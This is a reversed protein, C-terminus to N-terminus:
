LENYNVAQETAAIIDYLNAFTTLGNVLDYIAEEDTMDRDKVYFDYSVQWYDPALYTVEYKGDVIQLTGTKQVDNVWYPGTFEDAGNNLTILVFTEFVSLDDSTLKLTVSFLDDRTKMLLRQRTNRSAFETRRVIPEVSWKYGSQSYNLDPFTAM